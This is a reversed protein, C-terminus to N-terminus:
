GTRPRSVGVSGGVARRPHARCGNRLPCRRLGLRTSRCTLRSGGSSRSRSGCSSRRSHGRWPVPVRDRVACRAASSWQVRQTCHGQTHRAAGVRRGLRPSFDRGEGGAQAPGGDARRRARRTSHPERAPASRARARQKRSPRRKEHQGQRVKEGAPMKERKEVGSACVSICSHIATRMVLDAM